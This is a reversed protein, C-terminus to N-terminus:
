HNVRVSCAFLVFGTEVERADARQEAIRAGRERAEVAQLAKCAEGEPIRGCPQYERYHIADGSRVLQWLNLRQVFVPDGPV